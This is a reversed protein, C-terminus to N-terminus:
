KLFKCKENIDLINILGYKDVSEELGLKFTNRNTYYIDLHNLPHYEGDQREPDYDYRLYGPEFSLLWIVIAWISETYYKHEIEYEKMADIFVDLMIDISESFLSNNNFISSLISSVKSDLVLENFYVSLSGNEEIITFPFQFTHIKADKCIFVRSMKDVHITVEIEGNEALKLEELSMTNVYKITGLVVNIIDIRDRFVVNHSFVYEEVFFDFTKM